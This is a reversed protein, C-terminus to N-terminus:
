YISVFARMNKMLRKMLPSGLGKRHNEPDLLLHAYYVVLYGDSIANGLGVFRSNDWATVVSHSNSLGKLLENPKSASSWENASYLNLIANLPIDRTESYKIM